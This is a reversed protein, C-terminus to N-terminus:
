AIRSRISAFTEAYTGVRSRNRNLQRTNECQDSVLDANVRMIDKALITRVGEGINNTSLMEGISNNTSLMKM